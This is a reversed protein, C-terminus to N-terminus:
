PQSWNEKSVDRIMAILRFVNMANELGRHNGVSRRIPCVRLGEGYVTDVHFSAVAEDEELIYGVILILALRFLINGGDVSHSYLAGAMM